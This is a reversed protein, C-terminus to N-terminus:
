RMSNSSSWNMSTYWPISTFSMRFISGYSLENEVVPLDSCLVREDSHQCFFHRGWLCRASTPSFPWRSSSAPRSTSLNSASSRWCCCSSLRSQYCWGAPSTPSLSCLSGLPSSRRPSLRRCPDKRRVGVCGMQAPQAGLQTGGRVPLVRSPRVLDHRSRRCFLAFGFPRPSSSPSIACCNPSLASAYGSCV